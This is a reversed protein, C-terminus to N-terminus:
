NRRKDYLQEIRYEEICHYLKRLEDLTAKELCELFDIDENLRARVKHYFWNFDSSLLVVWTCRDSRIISGHWRRCKTRLSKEEALMGNSSIAPKTTTNQKKM